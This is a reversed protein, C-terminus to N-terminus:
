HFLVSAPVEIKSEGLRNYNMQVNNGGGNDFYVLKLKHYGKELLCKGEKEVFGHNGDNDVILNGDIYLCNVDDSATYFSYGGPRDVLIYGEVM